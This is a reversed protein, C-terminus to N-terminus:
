SVILQRTKRRKKRRKIAQKTMTGEGYETRSVTSMAGKTMGSIVSMGGACRPKRGKSNSSKRVLRICYRIVSRVKKLDDAETSGFAAEIVRGM